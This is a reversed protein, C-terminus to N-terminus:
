NCKGMSWIFYPFTGFGRFDQVPVLGTPFRLRESLSTIMMRAIFGVSIVPETGRGPVTIIWISGDIRSSIGSGRNRDRRTKRGQNSVRRPTLLHTGLCLISFFPQNAPYESVWSMSDTISRSWLASSGVSYKTCFSITFFIM